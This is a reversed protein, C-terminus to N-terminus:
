AARSLEEDVLTRLRKAASQWWETAQKETPKTRNLSDWNETFEDAFRAWRLRTEIVELIFEDVLANLHARDASTTGREVAREAVELFVKANELAGSRLADINNSLDARTGLDAFAVKV